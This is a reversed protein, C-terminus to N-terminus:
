KVVKPKRSIIAVKPISVQGRYESGVLERSLTIYEEAEKILYGVAKITEPRAVEDTQENIISSDIYEVEVKTM